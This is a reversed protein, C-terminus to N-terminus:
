FSLTALVTDSYAGDPVDQGSTAVTGVQYYATASSVSTFSYTNSTGCGLTPQGGPSYMSYNVYNGAPSKMRRAPTDCTSGSTPNSGQDM